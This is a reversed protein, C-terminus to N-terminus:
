RLNIMNRPVARSVNIALITFMAYWFLSSAYLSGSFMGAITYQIFLLAAWGWEEKRDTLVRVSKFLGSVLLYLFCFGGFVGLALFAELVLNHPYGVGPIEISCGLLFNQSIYSIALAYLGGRDNNNDSNLEIGEGILFLREVFSSGSASSISLGVFCIMAVVLIMLMYKASLQMYSRLVILLCVFLAISAGRSAAMMTVYVGLMAGAVYIWLQIWRKVGRCRSLQKNSLLLLLSFIALTVGYHGLSISNIAESGLRGTQLYRESGINSAGLIVRLGSIAHAFWLWFLYKKADVDRLFLFNFAPVLSILFWFLLYDSSSLFLQTAPTVVDSLLRISYFFVFGLLLLVSKRKLLNSLSNASLNKKVPFGIRLNYLLLFLNLILTIARYPVTLARSAEASEVFSAVVAYGGFTISLVVIRLQSISIKSILKM